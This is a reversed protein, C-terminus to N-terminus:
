EGEMRSLSERSNTITERRDTGSIVQQKNLILHSIVPIGSNHGRRGEKRTAESFRQEM